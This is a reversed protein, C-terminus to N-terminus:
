LARRRPCRRPTPSSSPWRVRPQHESASGRRATSTHIHRACEKPDDVEGVMVQLRQYRACRGGPFQALLDMAINEIGLLQDYLDPWEIQDVTKNM